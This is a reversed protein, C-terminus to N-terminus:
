GFEAELPKVFVGPAGVAGAMVLMTLFTVALVVWSYHIRRRSLSAALVSSVM